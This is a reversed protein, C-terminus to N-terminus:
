CRIRDVSLLLNESIILNKKHPAYNLGYCTVFDKQELFESRFSFTSLLFFFFFYKVKLVNRSNKKQKTKWYFASWDFHCWYSQMDM